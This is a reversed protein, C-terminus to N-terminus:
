TSPYLLFAVDLLHRSRESSQDPSSLPGLVVSSGACYIGAWTGRAGRGTDANAAIDAALKEAVDYDGDWCEIQVRRWDGAATRGMPGLDTLRIAPYTGTLRWSIRKDVVDTVATITRLWATVAKLPRTLPADTM